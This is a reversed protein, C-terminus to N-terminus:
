LKLLIILYVKGFVGQKGNCAIEKILRGTKVNWIRLQKESAAYFNGSDDTFSITRIFKETDPFTYLIKNSKTDVLCINDNSNRCAIYKGDKSYARIEQGYSKRSNKANPLLKIKQEIIDFLYTFGKETAVLVRDREKYFSTYVISDLKEALTGNEVTFPADYFLIAGKKNSVALTKGNPSYLGGLVRVKNGTWMDVTGKEGLSINDADDFSLTQVGYTTNYSFESVVTYNKTDIIKLTNRGSTYAVYSGLSNSAIVSNYSEGVVDLCKLQKGDPVSYEYAGKGGVTIVRKDDNTWIACSYAEGLKGLKKKATVDWIDAGALLLNGSHSFKLQSSYNEPIGLEIHNKSLVDYLMLTTSSYGTFYEYAVLTGDNNISCKNIREVFITQLVRGTAVNWIKICNSDSSVLWKGDSSFEMLSIDEIHGQQFVFDIENIANEKIAQELQLKRTQESFM